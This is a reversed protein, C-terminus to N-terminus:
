EVSVEKVVKDKSQKRTGTEGDKGKVQSFLPRKGNEWKSSRTTYVSNGSQACSDDRSPQSQCPIHKGIQRSKKHRGSEQKGGNSDFNSHTSKKASM